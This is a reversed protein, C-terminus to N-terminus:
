VWFAPLTSKWEIFSPVSLETDYFNRWKVSFNLTYGCNTQGSPIYGSQANDTWATYPYKEVPTYLIYDEVANADKNFSKVQCNMMNLLFSQYHTAEDPYQYLYDDLTVKLYYQM